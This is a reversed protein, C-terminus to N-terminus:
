PQGPDDSSNQSPSPNNKPDPSEGVDPGADWNADPMVPVGVTAEGGCSAASVSLVAAGIGALLFGRRARAARLTPYTAVDAVPQLKDSDKM